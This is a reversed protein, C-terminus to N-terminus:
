AACTRGSRGYVIFDCNDNGPINEQHPISCMSQSTQLSWELLHMHNFIVGFLCFFIEWNNKNIVKGMSILDEHLTKTNEFCHSIIKWGGNSCTNLVRSNWHGFHKIEPATHLSTSSLWWVLINWPFYWIENHSRMTEILEKSYRYLSM